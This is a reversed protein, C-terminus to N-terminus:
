LDTNVTINLLAPHLLVELPLLRGEPLSSNRGLWYVGIVAGLLCNDAGNELLVEIDGFSDALGVAFPVVERLEGLSSQTVRIVPFLQDHALDQGAEGVAPLVEAPRAVVGLQHLGSPWLAVTLHHDNLIMVLDEWDSDDM